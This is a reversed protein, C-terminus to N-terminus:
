EEVLLNGNHTAVHLLVLGRIDVALGVQVDEGDTYCLSGTEHALLTLDDLVDYRARVTTRSEGEGISVIQKVGLLTHASNRGVLREFIITNRQHESPFDKIEGPDYPADESPYDGYEGLDFTEDEDPHHRPEERDSTKDQRQRHRREGRDFTENELNAHRVDDYRITLISAEYTEPSCRVKMSFTTKNDAHDFIQYIRKEAVDSGFDTWITPSVHSPKVPTPDVGSLGDRGIVVIDNAVPDFSIVAEPATKDIHVDLHKTAEVNQSRDISYYDIGHVGESTIDVPGKVTAPRAGDLDYVTRAVGSIDDTAAFSVKVDTRNWGAVNPTPWVSATTEPPKTDAPLIRQLDAPTIEIISSEEPPGYAGGAGIAGGRLKINKWDDYPALTGTSSDNNTDIAVNKNTAVGDGNWDIPQSGDAVQVFAAPAAGVAPVWHKIAVGSAAPGLGVTENLAAENLSNLTANSYDIINATGGRTVGSFQWLYNMVSVYNPKNNVGDGGGHGLGLCHGLEHMFTGAVNTDTIASFTGLSVIFDSGPIARAVGSNSATALQHAFICYRFIKNRGSSTFGGSQNKIKDFETWNYTLINGSGDVTATGLQPVEGLQRSRSLSGWKQGTKFNMISNPGADIYLNIGTSGSRSIYPANAFADVVMKIAAPSMAHSHTADAMFDIQVFIDPKNVDAGMASLDIFQPGSGDGPDITVGNIKWDDPIGDGTLSADDFVWVVNANDGGGGSRSAKFTEPTVESYSNSGIFPNDWHFLSRSTIGLGEIDYYATGETGTAVGSSESRWSITQGAEIRAPPETTWEGHLLSTDGLILAVDSKNTFSVNVSRAAM